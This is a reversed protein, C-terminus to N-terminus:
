TRIGSTGSRLRSAYFNTATAFGRSATRAGATAKARAKDYTLYGWADGDHSYDERVTGWSRDSVYPGWRRWGSLDDVMERVRAREPEVTPAAADASSEVRKAEDLARTVATVDTAPPIVTDVRKTEGDEAM